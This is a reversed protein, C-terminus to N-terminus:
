DMHPLRLCMLTHAPHAYTPPATPTPPPTPLSPSPYPPPAQLLTSLTPHPPPNSFIIIVLYPLQHYPPRFPEPPPPLPREGNLSCYRLGTAANSSSTQVNTCRQCTRSNLSVPESSRLRQSVFIWFSESIVVIHCSSSYCVYLCETVDSLASKDLIDLM